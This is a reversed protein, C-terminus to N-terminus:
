QGIGNSGSVHCRLRKSSLGPTVCLRRRGCVDARRITLAGDPHTSPIIWGQARYLAWCPALPLQEATTGLASVLVATVFNCILGGCGLAEERFGTRLSSYRVECLYVQAKYFCGDPGRFPLWNRDSHCSCDSVRAISICLGRFCDVSPEKPQFKPFCINRCWRSGKLNVSNSSQFCNSNPFSFM